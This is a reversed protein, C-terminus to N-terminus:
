QQHPESQDHVHGDAIEEHTADRVDLIAVAFVLITGALPHNADVTIADGDVKVITLVQKGATTTAQFSTGVKIKELDKTQFRARPVVDVLSEDREGYAEGPPITVTLTDGMEKGELAAELGPAITGLGHVYSLPGKDDSSQIVTGDEQMLTYNLTVAKHKTIQM